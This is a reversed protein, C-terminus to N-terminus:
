EGAGQERRREAEKFGPHTIDPFDAVPRSLPDRDFAVSAAWRLWRDLVSRDFESLEADAMRKHVVAVFNRISSATQWGEAMAILRDQCALETQRRAEELRRREAEVRELKEQELKRRRALEREHSQELDRDAERLVALVVEGIRSEVLGARKGDKFQVFQHNWRVQALEVFLEGVHQYDYKPAFLHAYKDRKEEETVVHAVRRTRERIRLTFQLGRLEFVVSRNWEDPHDRQQVGIAEFTNVMADLLLLARQRLAGSTNVEVRPGKHAPPMRLGGWEDRTPRRSAAEVAERTQRTIASCGRLDSAVPRVFEGAGLRQALAGLEEDFFNRQEAPAEARKEPGHAKTAFLVIDSCGDPTQPLDPQHVKKGHELKAWYGPPPRPIDYRSCVKALGVDSLGYRPALTRMPTSWVQDYLQQRTLQVAGQEEM